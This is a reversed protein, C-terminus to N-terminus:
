FLQIITYLPLLPSPTSQLPYFPFSLFIEYNEGERVGGGWERDKKKETYM